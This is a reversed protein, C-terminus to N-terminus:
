KLLLQLGRPEGDRVDASQLRKYQRWIALQANLDARKSRRFSSFCSSLQSDDDNAKQTMCAASAHATRLTLMSASASDQAYVRCM